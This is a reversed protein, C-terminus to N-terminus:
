ARVREVGLRAALRQLRLARAQLGRPSLDVAVAIAEVRAEDPKSAAEAEAAVAANGAADAKADAATAKSSANSAEAAAAGSLVAATVAAEGLVDTGGDDEVANVQVQPADNDPM